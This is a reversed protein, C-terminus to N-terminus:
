HNRTPVISDGEFKFVVEGPKAYGFEARAVTVLFAQDTVLQKQRQRLDDIHAQEAKTLHEIQTKKEASERYALLPKWYAVAGGVLAFAVIVWISSSFIVKYPNM